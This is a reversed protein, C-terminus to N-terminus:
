HIPLANPSQVLSREMCKETKEKAEGPINSMAGLVTQSPIMYSHKPLSLHMLTWGIDDM